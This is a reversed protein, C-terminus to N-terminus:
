RRTFGRSPETTSLFMRTRTMAKMSQTKFPSHAPLRFSLKPSRGVEHRPRAKSTSSLSSLASIARRQYNQEGVIKNSAPPARPPRHKYLSVPAWRHALPELHCRTINDVSVVYLPQSDSSLSKVTWPFLLSISEALYPHKMRIYQVSSRLSSRRALVVRTSSM